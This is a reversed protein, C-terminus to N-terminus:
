GQGGAVERSGDNRKELHLDVNVVHEESFRLARVILAHDKELVAEALAALDNRSLEPLGALEEDREMQQRIQKRKERALLGQQVGDFAKALSEAAPPLYKLCLWVVVIPPGAQLIESIVLELSGARVEHVRLYEAPRMVYSRFGTPQLRGYVNDILQLYAAMDRIPLDCCDTHVVLGLRDGPQAEPLLIAQLESLATQPMHIAPEDV